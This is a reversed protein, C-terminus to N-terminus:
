DDEEPADPNEIKRRERQLEKVMKKQDKDIQHAIAMCFGDMIKRKQEPTCQAMFNDWASSGGGWEGKVHPHSAASKQSKSINSPDNPDPSPTSGSPPVSPM